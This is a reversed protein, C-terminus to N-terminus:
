KNTDYYELLELHSELKSSFRSIDDEDWGYAEEIYKEFDGIALHEESLHLQIVFDYWRKTDLPHGSLPYANLWKNLSQYSLPIVDEITYDETNEEIKNGHQTVIEAFVDDRYIDLLRNYEAYGIQSTGSEQTPVINVIDVSSREDNLTLILRSCPLSREQTYVVLSDNPRWSTYREIQYGRNISVQEIIDLLVMPNQTETCILACDKYRKM